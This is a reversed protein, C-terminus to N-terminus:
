WMWRNTLIHVEGDSKPVRFTFLQFTSFHRSDQALLSAVAIVDYALVLKNSARFSNTM